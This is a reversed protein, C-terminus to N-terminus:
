AAVRCKACIGEAEITAGSVKFGVAEAAHLLAHALAADEIETAQGCSRCILFQAAHHHDHAGDAHSGADICGVFASLREIRHVFGQQLLFELARYVTPPASAGRHLRLQELLHYAGAPAAADLILGLVIRRLETLKSGRRACLAAAHDLKAQTAPTFEPPM